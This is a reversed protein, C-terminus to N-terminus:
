LARLVGVANWTSSGVPERWDLFDRLGVLAFGSDASLKNLEEPFFFRMVHDERIHSTLRAGEWIELDFRVTCLHRSEDLISSTRRVIRETGNRIVRERPGPKDAIVGPGYWVDFVFTAGAVIHYRATNLAASVDADSQQYGLVAFMMVAADFGGAALQVTRVDGYRFSTQKSVGASAAKERAQALMAESTDVGTVAHGRQALLIAHNGTGCGLDLIRLKRVGGDPRVFAEIMDCERAYDKKGYLKDYAGAYVTGFPTM